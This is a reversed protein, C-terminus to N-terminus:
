KEKSHQQQQKAVLRRARRRAERGSLAGGIGSGIVAGLFGIPVGAILAEDLTSSSEVSKDSHAAIRNSEKVSQQIYAGSGGGFTVACAFTALLRAPRSLKDRTAKIKEALESDPKLSEAKAEVIAKQEIAAALGGRAEQINASLAPPIEPTPEELRQQASFIENLLEASPTKGEAAQELAMDQLARGYAGTHNRSARRSRLIDAATGYTDELDGAKRDIWKDTFHSNAAVDHADITANVANILTKPQVGAVFYIDSDVGEPAPGIQQAVDSLLLPQPNNKNKM